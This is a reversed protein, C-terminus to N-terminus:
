EKFIYERHYALYKKRKDTQPIIFKKGHALNLKKINLPSIYPSILITGDNEFTIFGQDFIRDYTPTLVLGNNHDIKEIDSSVSWPKIHSAILIREDNVKTIICESSEDLLNKRYEGQGNRADVLYQKRKPSIDKQKIEKEVEREKAPHYYPNFSYNLSPRFLFFTKGNVDKLKLVSICSIIPLMVSRFYERFIDDFSRIYYRSTDQKGLAHEITFFERNSINKLDSYYKQWNASIDEQYKQEQQEYEFKADNLYDEFDKKM